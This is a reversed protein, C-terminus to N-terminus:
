HHSRLIIYCTIITGESNACCGEMAFNAVMALNRLDGLRLEVNNVDKQVSVINSYNHKYNKAIARGLNERKTIKCEITRKM